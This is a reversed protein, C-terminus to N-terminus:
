PAPDAAAGCRLDRGRMAAPKAVGMAAYVTPALDLIHGGDITTGPAFGSGVAILFGEPRHNGSRGTPNTGPSPMHITGLRPSVIARQDAAPSTAWRVILDPLESIRGGPYIAESRTVERM